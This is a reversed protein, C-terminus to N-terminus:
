FNRLNWLFLRHQLSLYLHKGIFNAFNKFVCKKVSFRRHRSRIKRWKLCLKNADILHSRGGIKLLLWWLHEIFFTNRSIKCFKCSFVQTLTEKEIFDCAEPRKEKGFVQRDWEWQNKDSAAVPPTRSVPVLAKRHIRCFKWSCRSQLIDAFPQKQWIVFRGNIM